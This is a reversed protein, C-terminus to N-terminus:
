FLLLFQEFLPIMNNMFELAVKTFAKGKTGLPMYVRKCNVSKPVKKKNKDLEAGFWCIAESQELIKKISPGISM